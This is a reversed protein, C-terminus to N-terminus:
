ANALRDLVELALGAADEVALKRGREWAQHFAAADLQSHIQVLTRENEGALYPLIGVGADEHFAVASAILEAAPESEGALALVAAGRCIESALGHQDDLDLVIRISDAAMPAADSVRGDDVAYAALAGLISSELDRMGLARARGLQTEHLARAQARDGLGFYAWALMRNAFLASSEDGLENALQASQEFHARAAEFNGQDAEGAGLYFL